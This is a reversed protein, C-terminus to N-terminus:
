LLLSDISLIMLTRKGMWGEKGGGRAHNDKKNWCSNPWRGQGGALQWRGGAMQWRAGAVQWRGGAM